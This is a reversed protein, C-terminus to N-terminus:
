LGPQLKAFMELNGMLQLIVIGDTLAAAKYVPAALLKDRGFLRVYPPGFVTLWYVDPICQQIDKSAIFFNFRTSKKNLASVTGNM